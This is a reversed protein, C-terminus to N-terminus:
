RRARKPAIRVWPRLEDVRAELARLVRVSVRSRVPKGAKKQEDHIRRLEAAADIVLQDPTEGGLVRCKV